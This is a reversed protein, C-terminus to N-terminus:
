TVPLDTINSVKLDRFEDKHDEDYFRQMITMAPEPGYPMIRPDTPIMCRNQDYRGTTHRGPNPAVNWLGDWLKIAFSVGAENGVIRRQIMGDLWSSSNGHSYRRCINLVFSERVDHKTMLSDLLLRDQGKPDAGFYHVVYEEVLNVFLRRLSSMQPLIDKLFHRNAHEDDSLIHTHLPIWCVFLCQVLPLNQLGIPFHEACIHFECAGHFVFVRSAYVLPLADHYRRKADTRIYYGNAAAIRVNASM